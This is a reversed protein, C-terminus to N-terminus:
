MMGQVQDDLKRLVILGTLSLKPLEEKIIILPVDEMLKHWEEVYTSQNGDSAISM